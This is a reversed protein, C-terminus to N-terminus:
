HMLGQTVLLHPRLSNHRSRVSLTKLFPLAPLRHLLAGASAAAQAEDRARIHSHRRMERM